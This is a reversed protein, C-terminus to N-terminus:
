TSRALLILRRPDLSLETGDYDGWAQELELGARRCMAVLEAPTYLRLSHRLERRHGDPGILTWAVENRGTPIDYRRRDLWVTGGELEEWHLERYRRLVMLPNIGELVFAGGPRLARRIAALVREDEEETELYGFSSFLNLVADFENTYPIERM